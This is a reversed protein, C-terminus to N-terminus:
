KLIVKKGNVIYLGKAPAVVRQGNLNYVEGNMKENSIANISTTTDDGFGIFERAPAAIAPLYATNAGVTFEGGTKYFGVGQKGNMLVFIGGAVKTDELVGVLASTITADATTTTPINYEKSDGKLLVGTNAPVSTVETFTVVNESVSAVYATLGTGTFDLAYPSCFTAYEAASITKAVTTPIAEVSCTLNYGSTFTTTPNFTFTIDYVGATGVYYDANANPNETTPFGWTTDWAHNKAVKYYITGVELSVNKFTKSFTGDGNDTLDNDTLTPAWATEFFSAKEEDGIKQCGVVTYYPNEEVALTLTNDKINATFTLKYVGANEFYYDNNGSAPLEYGGWQGDTRLKYLYTTGASAEFHEVVLTYVNKDTASQTMVVDNDWGGTLQGVISFSYDCSYVKITRLMTDYRYLSFGANGAQVTNFTGYGYNNWGNFVAYDLSTAENVYFNMNNGSGSIPSYPTLLGYGIYVEPTRQNYNAITIGDLVASNDPNGLEASTNILKYYTVDAPIAASGSTWRDRPAGTATEWITADFDADTLAGFDITNKLSYKKSVTFTASNSTYGEASVTVTLEGKGTFTYPATKDFTATPAGELGSNNSAFTVQPYYFGDEALVMDTITFTPANLTLEGATVALTAVPSVTTGNTHLVYAYYKGSASYSVDISTETTSTYAADGVAPATESPTTTYYLTGVADPNAITYVRNAGDVKKFTFTPESVTLAATYDYIELNDFYIYGAGRGLLGYFGKVNPLATVDLSGTADQTTGHTITYSVSSATVVFKYHYWINYYISIATGANDLDNIYWDTVRSAADRQPQSMAFIYDTGTYTANNNVSYNSNGIFFQSVSRDKVNGGSMQMDFEIVYGNTTMEATTYGSGAEYAFNVTKACTRNGNGSVNVKSYNGYTADGTGLSITGNASTWDSATASEYNQSDLIRKNGDAWANGGVLLGVAVLLSKLLLKRKMNNTTKTFHYKNNYNTATTKPQQAGLYVYESAFTFMKDSVVLSFRLKKDITRRCRSGNIRNKTM